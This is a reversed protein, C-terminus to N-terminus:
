DKICRVSCGENKFPATSNFKTSFNNLNRGSALSQNLQSSSWFNLANGINFFLGQQHERGGSPIATFHYLDTAGTNPSNWHTLGVEKLKGGAVDDGGLFDSFVVFEESTPLHWGDPCIGQTESSATYQMIEDWQYLGGYTNCNNEDDNYCYKEIQNNDTQDQIGDIRLGINLNEAMWCQEGIEVVSYMQGEYEFNVLGDCPGISIVFSAINGYSIGKENTAYAAVYYTTQENLPILSSSFEGTGNGDSTLGINSELTPNGNIDWCVGRTTVTGNGDSSVIGGCLASNMTIATVISTSVIPLTIEVSTFQLVEGYSTGKENTAYATLYYTTNDTLSSITSTFSGTGSGDVTYGINDLLSPNASLSWCLGRATVSGNGEDTVEGGSEASNATINTPSSTNVAPLNIAVTSFQIIEGYSTGKENTAYAKVNYVIGEQLNTIESQFTGLSDGDNTLGLNNEISFVAATDWCVGKTLVSLGSDALAVGGCQASYLTVNTVVNTNVVPKGSKLTTISQETGYVTGNTYTLYSRIYYTTNDLLGTIESKYTTPQTLEGLISKSDQITPENEASWCHGHQIISNGGLTNVRTSAEVSAYSLNDTTTQGIEIKNSGTVEPNKKCSFIVSILILLTSIIFKTKM